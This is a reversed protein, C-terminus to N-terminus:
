AYAFAVVTSFPQHALYLQTAVSHVIRPRVSNHQRHPRQYPYLVRLLVIRLLLISPTTTLKSRYAHTPRTRARVQLIIDRCSYVKNQGTEQYLNLISSFSSLVGCASVESACPSCCWYKENNEMYATRLIPNIFSRHGFNCSNGRLCNQTSKRVNKKALTPVHQYTKSAIRCSMMSHSTPQNSKQHTAVMNLLCTASDFMMMTLKRGASPCGVGFEKGIDM